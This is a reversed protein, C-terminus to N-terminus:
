FLRCIARSQSRCLCLAGETQFCSNFTLCKPTSFGLNTSIQPFLIAWLSFSLKKERKPSLCLMATVMAFVYKGLSPFFCKSTFENCIQFNIQGLVIKVLSDGLTIHIFTCAYAAAVSPFTFPTFQSALSATVNQLKNIGIQFFAASLPIYETM